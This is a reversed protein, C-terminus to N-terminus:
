KCNLYNNNNNNSSINKNSISYDKSCNDQNSDTKTRIIGKSQKRESDSRNNKEKDKTMIEDQLQATALTTSTM